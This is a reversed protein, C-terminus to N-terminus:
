LAFYFVDRLVLFVATVAKRLRPFITVHNKHHFILLKMNMTYDKNYVRWHELGHEFRFEFLCCGGLDWQRLFSGIFHQVEQFLKIRLFSLFYSTLM